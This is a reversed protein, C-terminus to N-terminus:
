RAAGKKRRPRRRPLMRTGMEDLRGAVKAILDLSIRQLVAEDDTYRSVYQPSTGELGARRSVIYAVAEAEVEMARRALDGRSPWWGDPDGGLHGLYVHALEHLLVGYRSPEDLGDHLGIRIKMGNRGASATAFGANTSSLKVDSVSIHDRSTANTATRVGRERDWEGEFKGFQRLEAPPERGETSDIDYVLMVPHMPALILMPRADEKLRRDFRGHWDSQTAFFACSPNQLKVLMNNFPAYERFNAMFSVMEQFAASSRYAASERLLADVTSEMHRAPRQQGRMANAWDASGLLDRVYERRSNTSEPHHLVRVLADGVAWRAKLGLKRDVAALLEWASPQTRKDLIQVVAEMVTEVKPAGAFLSLQDPSTM